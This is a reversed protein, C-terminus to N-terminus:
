GAEHILNHHPSAVVALRRRDRQLRKSLAQKSVGSQRSLHSISEGNVVVRVLPLLDIGASRISAIANQLDMLELPCDSRRDAVVDIVCPGDCGVLPADLSLPLLLQRARQLQQAEAPDSAAADPRALKKSLRHPLRASGASAELAYTITQRVWLFAYTSFKCGAAPDFKEAARHLGLCGEQLLDEFQLCTTRLRHVFTKAISVVLRLNATVMRDRARLGVRRQAATAQRSQGRQILRALHLEEAATLMPVAAAQRLWLEVCSPLASRRSSAM